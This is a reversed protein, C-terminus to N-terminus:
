KFDLCIKDGPSLYPLLIDIYVHSMSVTFKHSYIGMVYMHM